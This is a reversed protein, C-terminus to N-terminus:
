LPIADVARLSIHSGSCFLVNYTVLFLGTVVSFLNITQPMLNRKMLLLNGDIIIISRELFLLVRLTVWVYTEHTVLFRVARTICTASTNTFHMFM